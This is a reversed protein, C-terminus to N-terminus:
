PEKKGIVLVGKASGSKRSEGLTSPEVGAALEIVAGLLSNLIIAPKEAGTLRLNARVVLPSYTGFQQEIPAADGLTLTYVMGSDSDENGTDATSTSQIVYGHERDTGAIIIRKAATPANLNITRQAPPAENGLIITSEASPPAASPKWGEPTKVEWNGPTAWLGDGTKGTWRIELGSAAKAAREEATLKPLTPNAKEKAAAKVFAESVPGVYDQVARSRIFTVNFRHANIPPIGGSAKAAKNEREFFEERWAVLKQAEEVAEYDKGGSERARNMLDLTAILKESFDLGRAVFAVRESFKADGAAKAAAEGLLKRAQALVEPSWAEQIMRRESLQKYMRGGALWDPRNFVAEHSKEMLEFYARVPKAAPGFGREFYDALLAEGDQLPDWALEAMLYYMPGQTGWHDLLTDFILGRCGNEALFRFDEIVNRFSVAPLAHNGGTYFTINPRYVINKTLRGWAAFDAKEIDRRNKDLLPFAGVYSVFVNEDPVLDIPPLKGPGYAMVSVYYGKGPYKAELMRALTNAFTVYRNSMAPGLRNENAWDYSWKPADPHDWATSRPDTCIGSNSSDNASTGFVRKAPNKELQEGVEVLWQKWVAPEGECLKKRNALEPYTGRTGDPQLAFYEPHEKGYRDWWEGFAHAAPVDFSDHFIRQRVCWEALRGFGDKNLNRFIDRQVFVPHFRYEFEPLSVTAKAPIDEGLAGPWLWRAGLYKQAFTYVANATGSEQETGGVARDRGVIAVGGGKSVILIEEPHQFTFDVGPFVEKLADQYGVWIAARPRAEPAGSMVEPTAGSMMGIVRALEAAANKASVPAGEPLVIPLAEKGDRVLEAARLTFGGALVACALLFKPIVGTLRGRKTWVVLLIICRHMKFANLDVAADAELRHTAALRVGM